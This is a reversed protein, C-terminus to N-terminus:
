TIKVRPSVQKHLYQLVHHPFGLRGGGGGLFVPDRTKLQLIQVNFTVKLLGPKSCVDACGAHTSHTSRRADLIRLQDKIGPFDLHQVMPHSYKVGLWKWKNMHGHKVLRMYPLYDMHM